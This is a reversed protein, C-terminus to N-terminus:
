THEKKTKIFEQRAILETRVMWQLCVIQWWDEYAVFHTDDDLIPSLSDHLRQLLISPVYKFTEAKVLADPVEAM